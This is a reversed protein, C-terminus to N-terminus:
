HLFYPNNRLQVTLYRQTFNTQELNPIATLKHFCFQFSFHQLFVRACWTVTHPNINPTPQTMAYRSVRHVNGQTHRQPREWFIRKHTQTDLHPPHERPPCADSVWQVHQCCLHLFPVPSKHWSSSGTASKKSPRAPGQGGPNIGVGQEARNGQNWVTQVQVLGHQHCGLTGLRYLVLKPIESSNYDFKGQQVGRWVGLLDIWLVLVGLAVCM